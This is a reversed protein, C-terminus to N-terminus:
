ESYVKSKAADPIEDNKSVTGGLEKFLQRQSNQFLNNQLRMLNKGEFWRIKMAGATIQKKLINDVTFAGRDTLSYLQDLERRVKESAPKGKRTGEM